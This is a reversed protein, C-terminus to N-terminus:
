PYTQLSDGTHDSDLKREPYGRAKKKEVAMKYWRCMTSESISIESESYQLMLRYLPLPHMFKNIIIDTLVSVGAYMSVPILPLPHILIQREKLYKEM